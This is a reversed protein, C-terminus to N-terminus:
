RRSDIRFGCAFTTAPKWGIMGVKWPSTLSSCSSCSIAYTCDSLWGPAAAARRLPVFEASVALLLPLFEPDYPFARIVQVVAVASADHSNVFSWLRM